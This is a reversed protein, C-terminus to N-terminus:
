KTLDSAINTIDGAGMVVIVDNATATNKIESVVDAFNEFYQTNANKVKVAEALKEGTAGTKGTNRADYVHTLVIRDAKSLSEVFGDFLEETRSYLHPQFIVVLNKEPYLERTGSITAAIETPHHGYDDYVPATDAGSGKAAASLVGKYEFRRWTGAFNELAEKIVEPAIQASQAAASAAAADKRIHVGPQKMKLSLDIYQRYDVVTAKTAGIVPALAADSTDCVLYGDEPLKSALEAFANQIDALDKYYDLHEDEINTVILIDPELTLFDRKYECAEVIAYKGKGARFNSGTKARLSGVIVTPDEGAAEFIDATMATTTTKGHTGAIAILYYPNVAAGLAEFYNMMPVGQEAAALMEPHDKSMAETYVVLDLDDSINAAAQEAFFKVGEKELADTIASSARDSGSVEKREHLFFRALASMGIGGIGIFHVKKINILNM